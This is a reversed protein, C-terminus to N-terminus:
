LDVDRLLVHLDEVRTGFSAAALHHCGVGGVEGLNHNVREVRAFKPQFQTLLRLLCVLEHGQRPARPVEDREQDPAEVGPLVHRRGEDEAAEELVGRRRACRQGRGHLVDVEVDMAQAVAEALFEVARDALQLRDLAHDAIRVLLLALQLRLKALRDAAVSLRDLLQVHLEVHELATGGGRQLQLEVVGPGHVAAELQLHLLQPM